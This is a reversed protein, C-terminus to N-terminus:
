LEGGSIVSNILEKVWKVQRNSTVKVRMPYNSHAKTQSADIFVYKSDKYDNPTLAIYANLTKGKVTFKVIPKNGVKYTKFKKGEIVRVNNIGEMHECLQEFRDKAIPLDLLKEDFTRLDKKGSLHAFPNVKLIELNNKACLEKILEITWKTQRASSLKLRMPYNEYAKVSSVDQFIYKTDVYEQPNLGMYANLTKGKITLKAVALNGVKYTESKKAQIIRDGVIRRLVNTIDDYRQKVEDSSEELKQKFTRDDRLGNLHAFPNVVEVESADAVVSEEDAFIIAIREDRAQKLKKEAIPTAILAFVVLLVCLWGAPSQMFLVFSGIFPIRTGSYIGKIQDYTVPFRDAIDNADGQLLFYRQDPHKENPEEIAVIRHIIFEGKFEYVVIDNVKLKSEEPLATIVVIDFKQLQDTVEGQKLYKHNPSIYSMSGSCVVNVVPVGTKVKSGSCCVTASISLAFSIFLATCSVVLLFKDFIVGIISPKKDKNNLYETKIKEDDLGANTIRLSYKILMTVLITFLTTLIAFVVACLIFQYVDFIM